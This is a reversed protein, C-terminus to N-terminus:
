PRKEMPPDAAPQAQLPLVWQAPVWGRQVAGNRVVAVALWSGQQPQNGAYLTEDKSLLLLSGANADPAVRLPLQEVQVRFRQASASVNADLTSVVVPQPAARPAVGASPVPLAKAASTQSGHLPQVDGAPVWGRVTGVSVERWGQPQAAAADLVVTAGAQLHLLSPATNSPRTRLETSAATVSLLAGRESRVLTPASAPAAPVAAAAAMAVPADPASPPPAGAAATDSASAAAAPEDPQSPVYPKGGFRQQLRDETSQVKAVNAPTGADVITPTVFVVLETERNQFRKSRFLAGLVPLDGLLPIKEIDTSAERQLLGSLVMTEGDRVNFETTTARKLLGPVGGAIISRDISSVESEVKARITGRSDARPAINLKIGYEKFQVVIGDRTSVAYPIEGGAIFSATSGSRASLRPQALLTAKGEQALLNLQANLGVNLVSLVNLGSPLILPEGEIASGIPAATDTPTQLNIAYGEGHRQLPSWLAGIAAGGTANWRLGMDTLLNIPFEVVKVDLSIMREWGVRNTFNVVQPYRKALEEIKLLDADALQEGEVIISSGVVSAKANPIASLFAAIERAFRGTDGPVINIKLRQYQGKENWVFLSSTGAGNAFIIVERGDLAAATMLSGNGVAIRAVGPTPFVRSEGVFMDIEVIDGDGVPAQIPAYLKSTATGSSRAASTSRAPAAPTPAPAPPPAQAADGPAAASATGPPSLPPDIVPQALVTPWGIAAIAIMAATAAATPRFKDFTSRSV